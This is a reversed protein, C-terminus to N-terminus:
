IEGGALVKINNVMPTVSSQNKFIITLKASKIKEDIIKTYASNSKGGSFRIVKVGNLNSNIPIVEYDVGNITLIFKVASNSLGQPIYVNAFVSISFCEATILEDTEIRTQTNYVKKYVSIDNIKIASRKATKVISTCTITEFADTNNLSNLLVKEHAIVDDKNKDTEFTIKFFRSLPIEVLGSGYIYGYSSYSSLKDNIAIKNTLNLDKYDIGDLSYQINTIYVGTDETAIDIFNIADSAEFSITCKAKDNDKNFYTNTVDDETNQVTIRSYEYYTSIKKDTINNRSSTDYVDKQYEYNNYVYKNGEYGNGQVDLVRLKMKTAKYAQAMLVDNQKEYNGNFVLDNMSKVNDFDTYKNCLMQIDQYREKETLICQKVNNLRTITEQFLNNISNGTNILIDDIDNIDNYINILSDNLNLDGGAEPHFFLGDFTQKYDTLHIKRYEDLIQKDM